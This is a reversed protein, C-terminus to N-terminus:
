PNGFVKSSKKKAPAKGEMEAAVDSASTDEEVETETEGTPAEQATKPAAKKVAAKKVTRPKRVKPAAESVEVEIELEDDHTLSFERGKM